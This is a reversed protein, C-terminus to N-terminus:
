RKGKRQRLTQRIHIGVFHLPFQCTMQSVQLRDFVVSDLLLVLQQQSLTHKCRTFQHEAIVMGCQNHVAIGSKLSGFVTRFGIGCKHIRAPETKGFGALRCWRGIEALHRATLIFRATEGFGRLVKGAGEADM